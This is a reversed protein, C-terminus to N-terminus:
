RIRRDIDLEGKDDLEEIEIWSRFEGNKYGILYRRYIIKWGRGVRRSFNIM